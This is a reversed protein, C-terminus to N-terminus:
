RCPTCRPWGKRRPPWSGAAEARPASSRDVRVQECREASGSASRVRGAEMSYKGVVPPQDNWHASAESIVHVTFIDAWEAPDSKLDKLKALQEPPLGDIEFTADPGSGALGITPQPLSDSQSAIDSPPGTMDSQGAPGAHNDKNGINPSVSKNDACGCLVLCAFTVIRIRM